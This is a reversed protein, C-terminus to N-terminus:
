WGTRTGKTWGHSSSMMRVPRAYGQARRARSGLGVADVNVRMVLCGTGWAVISKRRELCDPAAASKVPLRATAESTKLM